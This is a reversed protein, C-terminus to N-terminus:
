HVLKDILFISVVWCTLGKLYWEVWCNLGKLYRVGWWSKVHISSFTCFGKWISHM